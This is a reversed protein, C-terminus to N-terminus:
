RQLSDQVRTIYQYVPYDGRTVKELEDSLLKLEINQASIAEKQEELNRNSIKLRKFSWLYMGFLIAVLTLLVLSVFLLIQQDRYRVNLM